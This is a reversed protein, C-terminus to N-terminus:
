KRLLVIKLSILQKPENVNKDLGDGIQGYMNNGITWIHGNLGDSLLSSCEIEKIM